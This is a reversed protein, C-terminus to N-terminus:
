HITSPKTLKRFIKNDVVKSRKKATSKLRCFGNKTSSPMHQGHLDSSMGHNSLTNSQGVEISCFKVGNGSFFSLFYTNITKLSKGRKIKTAQNFWDKLFKLLLVGCPRNFSLRCTFQWKHNSNCYDAVNLRAKMENVNSQNLVFGLCQVTLLGRPDWAPRVRGRRRSPCAWAFKYSIFSLWRNYNRRM